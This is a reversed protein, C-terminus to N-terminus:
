MYFVPKWIEILVRGNYNRRSIISKPNTKKYFKDIIKKM